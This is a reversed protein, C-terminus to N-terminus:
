INRPRTYFRQSPTRQSPTIAAFTFICWTASEFRLTTTYGIAMYTIWFSLTCLCKYIQFKKHRTYNYSQIKLFSTLFLSIWLTSPFFSEELITKCGRNNIYSLKTCFLFCIDFQRLNSRLSVGICPVIYQFRLDNLITVYM